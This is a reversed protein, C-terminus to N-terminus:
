LVGTLEGNWCRGSVYSEDSLLLEYPDGDRDPLSVITLHAPRGPAISGHRDALGLAQAGGSTAMALLQAPSVDPHARAAARLEAFLSLDPASARSDTGLAVTCGAARLRALPYPAHQFWAHTRPCYVVAMRDPRQALFAIEEDDLYNGHVVLVRHAEALTRLYDLPRTKRSILDPRWADREDLLTRLPGTGDRLLELEERSEALHFALAVRASASLRVAEAFLTPHVTYPAHPSLGFGQQVAQRAVALAAQAQEPTPGILERFRIADLPPFPDPWEASQVIDGVATVGQRVLEAAGLVVAAAEARHERARLTLRIWDAIGVGPAGLPRAIDSLELHTHANVLGPLIAVNGLDRVAASVCGVAAIREGEIAVAANALPPCVDSFVWRARVVVSSM